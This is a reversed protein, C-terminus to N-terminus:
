QRKPIDLNNDRLLINISLFSVKPTGAIPTAKKASKTAKYRDTTAKLCDLSLIPLNGTLRTKSFITSTTPIAANIANIPRTKKRVLLYRDLPCNFTETSWCEYFMYIGILLGCPPPAPIEENESPFLKAIFFPDASSASCFRLSWYFLKCRVKISDSYLFRGWSVYIM